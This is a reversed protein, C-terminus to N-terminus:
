YGLVINMDKPKGIMLYVVAIFMLFLCVFCLRILLKGNQIKKKSCMVNEELEKITDKLEVVVSKVDEVEEYVSDEVWKFLHGLNVCVKRKTICRFFPRGPNEQTKSTYITVESGCMCKSPFGRDVCVICQESSTSM